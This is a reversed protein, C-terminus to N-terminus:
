IYELLYFLKYEGGVKGMKSNIELFIILYDLEINCNLEECVFGFLFFSYYWSYWLMIRLICVGFINSVVM